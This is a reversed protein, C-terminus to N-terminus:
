RRRYPKWGQIHGFRRYCWQYQEPCRRVCAEVGQNLARTAVEPDADAIGEPAPEFHVRFGRGRRLREAWTFVVPAGSSAALRGLLTMTWAPEGCFPAIVGNEKAPAQDPLIAVLEGARLRTLVARIGRPGVPVLRAGFRERGDRVLQELAAMRPPRYLSTMPQRRSLALGLFEWCGLHPIALIVGCGKAQAAELHEAGVTERWLRDTVAAPGYWLRGAELATKATEVMSRRGLRRRQRPTRDAYCVALNAEIVQRNTERLPWILHALVVAVAHLIPLPLRGAGRVLGTILRGLVPRDASTTTM